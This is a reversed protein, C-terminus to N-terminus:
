DANRRRRRQSALGIAALGLGLMGYSAPEPVPSIQFSLTGRNWRADPASAIDDYSDYFELTLRGDAGLVFSQGANVLDISGISAQTGSAYAEMAPSFQVGVGFHNTFELTVESLWSDGLTTVEVDWSFGTIRTGAGLAFSLTTNDSDGKLGTSYLNSFDVVFDAALAPAVPAALAALLAAAAFTSSLKM